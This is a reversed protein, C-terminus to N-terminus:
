ADPDLDAPTVLGHEFAREVLRVRKEHHPLDEVGLRLFLARLHTKVAAVSLHLAGAIDKNTAPRVFAGTQWYPRCLAVLVRRQAPSLEPPREAPRSVFTTSRRRRPERFVLTTNGVRLQDGDRLRKRAVVRERNLFTGNRSMGDDIVLWDGALQRLEAHASSVQSDWDISIDAQDSRGITRPGSEDLQVIRQRGDGDRLVFFPNGRREAAIRDKLEAPSEARLGIQSVNL